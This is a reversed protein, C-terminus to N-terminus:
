RGIVTLVAGELRCPGRSQISLGMDADAPVTMTFNITVREGTASPIEKTVTEDGLMVTLANEIILSTVDVQLSVEILKGDQAVLKGGSIPTDLDCYASHQAIDLTAGGFTFTHGSMIQLPWGENLTYKFYAAAVDAEPTYERMNTVHPTISVRVDQVEYAGATTIQLPIPDTTDAYVTGYFRKHEVVGLQNSLAVTDQFGGFSLVLRNDVQGSVGKVKVEFDYVGRPATPRFRGDGDFWEHTNYPASFKAVLQNSPKIMGAGVTAEWEGYQAQPLFSNAGCLFFEDASDPTPLGVTDAVELRFVDTDITINDRPFTHDIRYAEGDEVSVIGGREPIIQSALFIIQPAVDEREAYAYSTGLVGGLPKFKDHVRVQCRAWLASGPARYLAPVQFTKHVDLRSRRRIDRWAM